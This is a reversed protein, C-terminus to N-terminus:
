HHSYQGFSHLHHEGQIQVTQPPLHAEQSDEKHDTLHQHRAYVSLFLATPTKISSLGFLVLQLLYLDAQGEPHQYM